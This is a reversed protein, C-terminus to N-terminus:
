GSGKRKCYRLVLAGAAARFCMTLHLRRAHGHDLINSVFIKGTLSYLRTNYRSESSPQAACGIISRAVVLDAFHM